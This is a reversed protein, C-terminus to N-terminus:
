HADGGEKRVSLARIDLTGTRAYLAICLAAGVATVVVEIVILAIIYGEALSLSGNAFGALGILLTAAKNIVEMAILVRLLNHTAVICYIGTAATLVIAMLFILPM